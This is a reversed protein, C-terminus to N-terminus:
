NETRATPQQDDAKGEQQKKLLPNNPVAPITRQLGQKLRWRDLFGIYQCMLKPTLMEDDCPEFFPGGNGTDDKEARLWTGAHYDKGDPASYFILLQVGNPDGEHAPPLISGIYCTGATRKQVM